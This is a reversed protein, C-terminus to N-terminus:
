KKDYLHMSKPPPPNGELQWKRTVKSFTFRPEEEVGPVDFVFHVYSISGAQNMEQDSDRWVDYLPFQPVFNRQPVVPSAKQRKNPPQKTTGPIM